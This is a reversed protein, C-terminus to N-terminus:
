PMGSLTGTWGTGARGAAGTQEAQFVAGRRDSAREPQVAWRVGARRQVDLQREAVAALLWSGCRGVKALSLM